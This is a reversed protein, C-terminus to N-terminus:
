SIRNWFTVEDVTLRVTPHGPKAAKGIPLLMVPVYRDPIGFAEAFKASDYGGMPVTDYGKARAALMLQMAALSADIIAVERAKEPPLKSYASVTRSIFSQATDEPMYGAGAARNYITEANRYGEKDGLIAIVASAQVIQQQNNAIPLLQEKLEPTDIVLFRWHQMNSSSPALAALKLIEALEERPIIHSPDYSRVSRRSRLLELASLTPEAVVVQSASM